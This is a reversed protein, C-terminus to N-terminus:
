VARWMVVHPGVGPVEFEPGVAAWGYAAYFGAAGRRANCWLARAGAARAERVCATLVAAGFGMGRVRGESAMGRLQWAAEAPIGLAHPPPAPYVTAVAVVADDLRAALHLAAGDQEFALLRDEPWTPRLVRTRLPRVAAAPELSADSM